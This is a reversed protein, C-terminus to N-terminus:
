ARACAGQSLKSDGNSLAQVLCRQDQTPQRRACHPKELVHTCIRFVRLTGYSVTFMKSSSRRRLPMFSNECARTSHFERM